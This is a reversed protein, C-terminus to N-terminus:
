RQRSLFSRGYRHGVKGSVLVTRDNDRLTQLLAQRVEELQPHNCKEAPVFKYVDRVKFKSSDLSGLVNYSNHLLYLFARSFAESICGLIGMNWPNNFLITERSSALLFDANVLFPFGTTLETPLFAYLDGVTSGLIRGHLPFALTLVWSDVNKRQEVVQPAAVPFSHQSLFYLRSSSKPAASKEVSLRVTSNAAAAREHNRYKSWV